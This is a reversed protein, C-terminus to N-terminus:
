ANDEEGALAKEAIALAIQLAGDPKPAGACLRITELGFKLRENEAELGAIYQQTNEGLTKLYEPNPRM